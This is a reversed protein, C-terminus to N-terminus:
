AEQCGKTNKYNTRGVYSLPSTTCSELVNVVPLMLIQSMLMLLIDAFADMQQM